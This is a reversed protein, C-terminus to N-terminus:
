NNRGHYVERIQQKLGEINKLYKEEYNICFFYFGFKDVMRKLKKDAETAARRGKDYLWKIEQQNNLKGDEDDLILLLDKKYRDDSSEYLKIIDIFSM